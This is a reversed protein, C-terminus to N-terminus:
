VRCVSGQWPFQHSCTAYQDLECHVGCIVDGHLVSRKLFPDFALGDEQHVRVPNAVSFVLFPSHPVEIDFDDECMRIRTIRGSKVLNMDCFVILMSDGNVAADKLDAPCTHIILRMNMDGFATKCHRRAVDAVQAVDFLSM